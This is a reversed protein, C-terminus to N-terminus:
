LSTVHELVHTLAPSECSITCVACFMMSDCLFQREICKHVLGALIRTRFLSLVPAFISISKMVGLSLLIFMQSQNHATNPSAAEKSAFFMGNKRDMNKSGAM